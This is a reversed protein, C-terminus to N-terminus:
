RLKTLGDYESTYGDKNTKWLGKNTSSADFSSVTAVIPQESPLILMKLLVDGARGGMFDIVSLVSTKTKNKTKM